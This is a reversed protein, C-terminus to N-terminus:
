QGDTRNSQSSLYSVFALLGGLVVSSGIPLFLSGHPLSVNLDGPLSGLLPIYGFHLRVALVGAALALLITALKLVTGASDDM